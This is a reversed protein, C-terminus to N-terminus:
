AAATKASKVRLEGQVELELNKIVKTRFQARTTSHVNTKLGVHRELDARVIETRPTWGVKKMLALRFIWEDLNKETIEGLDVQMTLFILRETTPGLEYSGDEHTQHLQGFDKVATISWTLSM